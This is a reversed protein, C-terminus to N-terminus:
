VLAMQNTAEDIIQQAPTNASILGVTVAQQVVDQINYFYSVGVGRVTPSNGSGIQAENLRLDEQIVFYTDGDANSTAGDYDITATGVAMTGVNNIYPILVLRDGVAFATSSIAATVWQNNAASTGLETGFSATLLDSGQAGATYKAVRIQLGSNTAAADEKGWWNVYPASAITVAVALPKTIWKAAIGGSTLTAPINSGSSTTATVATAVASPPSPNRENVLLLKYGSVDSDLNTLYMSTSM